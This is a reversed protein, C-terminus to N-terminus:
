NGVTAMIGVKINFEPLFIGMKLIKQWIRSFGATNISFRRSFPGKTKLIQSGLVWGYQPCVGTGEFQVNSGGRGPISFEAVDLFEYGSHYHM